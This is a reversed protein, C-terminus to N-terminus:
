ADKRNDVSYTLWVSSNDKTEINKLTFSVPTDESINKRAEFLAPTDPSGDAVPSLVLSLEDCFGEQIFSWNLVAGGGLMISDLHFVNKLKDLLLAIDLSDEGAIIYSIEKRRLFDKYANSVKNTLVELVTATTDKYKLTNSQWGLKGSTDISIYYKDTKKPLIFDGEPVIPADANLDPKKYHTFNDDTTTRGSLWGQNKYHAQEGFAINYFWDSALKSKPEGMYKGMIKGDLSTAMHCFIYPRNM